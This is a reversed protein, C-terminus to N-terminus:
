KYGKYNGQTPRKLSPPLDNGIAGPLRSQDRDDRDRYKDMFGNMMGMPGGMPRRKTIDMQDRLQRGDIPGNTPRYAEPIGM